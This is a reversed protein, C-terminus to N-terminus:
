GAIEELLADKRQMVMERADPLLAAFSDPLRSQRVRQMVQNLRVILKDDELYDWLVLERRFLEIFMALQRTPRAAMRNVAAEVREPDVEKLTRYYETLRNPDDAILAADLLLEVLLHGLFAPRFGTEGALADRVRVTLELSTEAFARTAHFRADDRLHQLIGGAIDATCPDPDDRFPEAHKSRVRVPRDAAMLWDPVSAGALVYPRNLFPLAHAFYNM